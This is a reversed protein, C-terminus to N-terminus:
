VAGFGLVVVNDDYNPIIRRPIGPDIGRKRRKSLM